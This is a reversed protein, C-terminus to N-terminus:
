EVPRFALAQFIAKAAHEAAKRDHWGLIAVLKHAEDPIAYPRHKRYRKETRGHNEQRWAAYAADAIIRHAKAEWPEM